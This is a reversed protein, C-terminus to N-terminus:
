VRPLRFLDGAVPPLLCKPRLAPSARLVLRRGLRVLPETLRARSRRRPRRSRGGAPSKPGAM